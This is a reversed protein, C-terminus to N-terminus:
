VAGVGADFDLVAEHFRRLWGAVHVLTEDSHTWGPWPASKRCDGRSSLHCGCSGALRDGIAASGRRLGAGQLHALRRAVSGSWSGAVRGRGDVLTAGDDLGGDLRLEGM